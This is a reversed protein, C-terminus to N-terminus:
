HPGLLKMLRNIRARLPPHTESGEDMESEAELQEFVSILGEPGLAKASELDARYENRWSVKPILLFLLAVEFIQAIIPATLFVLPVTAAFVFGFVGAMDLWFWKRARVHGLEHGLTSMIETHPFKALWTRPLRITNTVGNTFPGIRPNTILLVRPARKVGMTRALNGLETPEYKEHDGRRDLLVAPLLTVINVFPLLTFTFTLATFVILVYGYILRIGVPM